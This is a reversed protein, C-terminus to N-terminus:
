NELERYAKPTVGTHSKFFRTFDSHDTKGVNIAIEGITLHTQKLLVKAELIRMESLLKHASKGTVLKVCKHLHNKSIALHKAFDAVTKKEYIYQQLANKYHETIINAAKNRVPQFENASQKSVETFLATLYLPITRDPDEDTVRYKNELIDLVRVMPESDKIKRLPNATFSFFPFDHQLNINLLPHKFIASSFHCYYGKVDDSVFNIATIQDAPLFYFHDSLIEYRTLGKSRVAKGQTLFIFFNVGRRHPLVPIKLHSIYSEIRTIHFQHYSAFTTPKWGPFLYSDFQSTTLSPIKSNDKIASM